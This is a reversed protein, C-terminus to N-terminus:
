TNDLKTMLQEQQEEFMTEIDNESFHNKLKIKMYAKLMYETLFYYATDNSIATFIIDQLKELIIFKKQKSFEKQNHQEFEKIGDEAAQKLNVLEIAAINSNNKIMMDEPIQKHVMLISNTIVTKILGHVIKYSKKHRAHEKENNM